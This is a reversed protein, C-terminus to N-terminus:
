IAKEIPKARKVPKRTSRTLTYGAFERVPSVPACPFLFVVSNRPTDYPPVCLLLLGRVPACPFSSLLFKGRLKATRRVAQLKARLKVSSSPLFFFHDGKPTFNLLTECPPCPSSSFSSPFFCRGNKPNVTPPPLTFLKEPM